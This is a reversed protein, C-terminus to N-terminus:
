SLCPLLDKEGGLITKTKEVDCIDNENEDKINNIAVIDV